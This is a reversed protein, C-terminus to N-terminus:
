FYFCYFTFITRKKKALKCIFKVGLQISSDSPFVLYRRKRSLIRDGVVLQNVIFIGFILWKVFILMEISNSIVIQLENRNFCTMKINSLCFFNSHISQCDILM